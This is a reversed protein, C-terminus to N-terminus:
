KIPTSNTTFINQRPQKTDQTTVTAKHTRANMSYWLNYTSKVQEYPIFM